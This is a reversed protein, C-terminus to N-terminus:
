IENVSHYNLEPFVEYRDFSLELHRLRLRTEYREVAERIYEGNRDLAWYHWETYANDDDVSLNIDADRLLDEREMDDAYFWENDVYYQCSLEDMAKTALAHNVSESFFLDNPTINITGIKMAKEGKKNPKGDDTHSYGARM